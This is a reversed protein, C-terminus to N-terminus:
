RPLRSKAAALGAALGKEATIKAIDESSHIPKEEAPPLDNVDLGLAAISSSVARQAYEEREAAVRALEARASEASQEAVSVRSELDAMHAEMVALKRSAKREEVADPSRFVDLASAVMEPLDWLPSKRPSLEAVSPAPAAPEPSTDDAAPELISDCWHAALADKANFYHNVGDALFEAVQEVSQGTRAAYMAHVKNELEEFFALDAKIQAVSGYLGGQPPHVMWTSNPRMAITDCACAIFTAASACVGLVIAEKKGPLAAIADYMALGATTSGGPSDIRFVWHTINEKAYYSLTQELAAASEESIRGTVIIEKIM